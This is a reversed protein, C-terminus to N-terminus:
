KRGMIEDYKELYGVMDLVSDRDHRNALRVLKMVILFMPVLNPTIERKGYLANWVLSVRDAEEQYPPYTTARQELVDSVDKLLRHKM